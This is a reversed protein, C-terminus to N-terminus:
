EFAAIQLTGTNKASYGIPNNRMLYCAGHTDGHSHNIM